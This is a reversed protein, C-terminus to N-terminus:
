VCDLQENGVNLDLCARKCVLNLNVLRGTKPGKTILVKRRCLKKKIVKNKYRHRFWRCTTNPREKVRGISPLTFINRDMDKCRKKVPKAPAGIKLTSRSNCKAIAGWCGGLAACTSDGFAVFDFGLQEGSLSIIKTDTKLVQQSQPAISAPVATLIGTEFPIDAGFRGSTINYTSQATNSVTYDIQVEAELTHFEFTVGGDSTSAYYALTLGLVIEDGITWPGPCPLTASGTAALHGTSDDGDAYVAFDVETCECYPRAKFEFVEGKSVFGTRYECETNSERCTPVIFVPSSYDLSGDYRLFASLLRHDEPCTEAAPTRLDDCTIIGNISPEIVTCGISSYWPCRETPRENDLVTPNSADASSPFEPVTANVRFNNLWFDSESHSSSLPAESGKSIRPGGVRGEFLVLNEGKDHIFFQFPHDMTMLVPEKPPRPISMGMASLTVAAAEVGKENVDIFTKQIVKNIFIDCQGFIDCLDGVFPKVVGVEQLAEVMSDEYTKEFKFKPLTVALPTNKLKGVAELVESSSLSRSDEQTPLVFIMFMESAAFPFKVIQYGPIVDHSYPVSKMVGHMFHATSVITERTVSSYFSDTSTYRKEFQNTWAAKLYISNLALLRTGDAGLPKGEQVISEILGNSNNNVWENLILPSNESGFDIQRAYDGLVLAYDKALTEGDDLWVSFAIELLPEHRTGQYSDELRSVTDDWVLTMKDQPYGFVTQIQKKSEGTSGPYILSFAMSVGLASTCDNEDEYLVSTLSDAFDAHSLPLESPGITFTTFSGCDLAADSAPSGHAYFSFDFPKGSLSITKTDTELIERSIPGMSFPVDTLGGTDFPSDAGFRGSTIVFTDGPNTVVYRIQVKAELINFDSGNRSVYNTLTLGPVVQNGIRWPGPCSLAASGSAALTGTSDDGGTYLDFKVEACSDPCKTSFEFVEGESVFGPKCEREGCIPMVFVPGGLSGDYRLFASLLWHDEPCTAVAPVMLDDCTKIAGGPNPEIVKCL